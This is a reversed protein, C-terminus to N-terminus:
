RIFNLISNFFFFAIKARVKIPCFDSEAIIKNNLHAKLCDTVM